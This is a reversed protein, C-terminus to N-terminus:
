INWNIMKNKRPLHQDTLAIHIKNHGILIDSPFGPSIGAIDFYICNNFISVKTRLFLCLGVLCFQGSVFWGFLVWVFVCVFFWFWLFFGLVLLWFLCLFGWWVVRFVRLRPLKIQGGTSSRSSQTHCDGTQSISRSFFVAGYSCFILQKRKLSYSIGAIVQTIQSNACPSIWLGDVTDAGAKQLLLCVSQLPTPLCSVQPVTVKLFM